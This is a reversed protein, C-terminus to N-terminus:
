IIKARVLEYVMVEDSDHIMTGIFNFGCKLLVKQSSINEAVTLAHVTENPITSFVYDFSAMVLETALGKGHFPKLLAYGLHINESNDISLLSFSGAFSNDDKTFVAFRGLGPHENYFKLIEELFADSAEKSKPQRIYQMIEADGNLAFFIEADDKTYPQVYLRESEFLKM